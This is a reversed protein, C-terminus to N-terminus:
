RYLLKIFQYNLLRCRVTTLPCYFLSRIQVKSKSFQINVFETLVQFTAQM